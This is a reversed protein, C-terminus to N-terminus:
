LFLSPLLYFPHLHHNPAAIFLFSILLGLILKIFQISVGSLGGLSLMIDIVSEPSLIYRDFCDVVVIAGTISAFSIVALSGSPLVIYDECM